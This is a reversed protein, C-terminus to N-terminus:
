DLKLFKNKGDLFLKIFLEKSHAIHKSIIDFLELLTKRQVWVNQILHISLHILESLTFELLFEQGSQLHEIIYFKDYSM